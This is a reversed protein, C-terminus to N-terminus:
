HAGKGVRFYCGLFGALFTLVVFLVAYQMRVMPFTYKGGESFPHLPRSLLWMAILSAAVTTVLGVVVSKLYIV